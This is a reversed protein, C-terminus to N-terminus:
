HPASHPADAPMSPADASSRCCPPPAADTPAMQEAAPPCGLIHHFAETGRLVTALGLVVLVTGGVATGWRRLRVTAVHGTMGLALLSWTTGVGVAAMMAMGVLVSGSQVALLLFGVIIPCPLFGGALGLVIAGAPTPRLFFQRFLSATLGEGEGAAARRGVPLLGVMALGALVMAAGATWALADRLWPLRLVGLLTEGLFGAMAGLFMYTFTRGANWLLQRVLVAGRSAGDGGALHLAFGGCMGLCHAFAVAGGALGLWVYHWAFNM